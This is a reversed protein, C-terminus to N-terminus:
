PRPSDGHWGPGRLARGGKADTLAGHDYEIQGNVIVYDVGKSLQVPNAYTAQDIITAPDFITVDAFFGLKLLGRDPLHERQAPMSTIKRVARELPMLHQDRVYHGLFRPMSGFARPHSHPEYLLGDLSLENADLGISTWTQKLGYKLDEESAFFYIAGTQAHDALIFDFFADLEPKAMAKAMQAVTMGDYKKLEPNMVGSIMVGEGGGSDFFLNEWESHDTALERKIRARVQPDRLRELMKEVGGDAVWPPLSSALATAGAVYPYQDARIDLGADRAAQIKEVVRPMSGWRSKGAVKLHFIEVPLGAERGIRIAEDLAQMETAGESRMHTAYIGGYQAAVKALDILEDTKAYHGPPYILATSIGLAGDKMAQAVLSKMQELEAPTPPRDDDGIVAERVQAAGVYTGLNIPTGDKELRRFYGDLTTWDVILHYHDLFQKQPALTKENQPAASGGEGTIETTIGQALKSLSRNDILLAMESQGLMDIFGPSVIRDKADIVKKAQAGDLKGIAVIRDGRIGIDAAYWPGGSGDLIHGNKILIDFPAPQDPPTMYIASAIEGLARGVIKQPADPDDLPLSVRNAYAAFALHRGDPTTMYGALGKGDLMLSKNLANYSGYTGTKAFIHGAAPSDVGIKALTGDRGLIPLAKEFIAFDKQKSMFALYQVMFDPTFYASRAGGAGDGQSASALDLGAKELFNHELDFGGQDIEKTKHALFAGLIFPTMSAHLNQSVKLTVKVEESFPPSIHEGVINEATYSAALSKFDAVETPPPLNVNIGKERLAEVLAVQAFRSPQPVAYSYLISPKGLPFTGTLTVTHSGDPNAIDNLPQLEPKSGAAGTIIKNVFNVYPTEPSIKMGTPAGEKDGPSVTLDVINDNVSVPSIVVETGGERDGEPFLTADVLVRGQIRKIGHAAVQAALERIVLLPDGPVARTDPSGDYSHDQDEFALSGDPQIRGSLNPDGSALLILDGNLTGDSAIPGTRYIRTHFRFDAGLLELATGETLLKTTSAPTFLQDPHLAFLVSDEDLSYVEVGFSAHKYEPRSSIEHIRAALVSDNNAPASDPWLLAAPSIALLLTAFLVTQSRNLPTM